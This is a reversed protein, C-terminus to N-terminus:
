CVCSNIKFIFSMELDKCLLVSKFHCVIPLLDSGCLAEAQHEAEGAMHPCLGRPSRFQGEPLLAAHFRMFVLGAKGNM